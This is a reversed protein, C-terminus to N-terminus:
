ETGDPFGASRASANELKMRGIIRPRDLTGEFSANMDVHGGVDVDPIYASLLRLDVSGNLKM